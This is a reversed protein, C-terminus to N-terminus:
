RRAKMKVKLTLKTRATVKRGDSRRTTAVVNLALKGKRKLVKRAKASLKLRLKKTAGPAVTVRGRAAVLKRKKASAVAKATTAEVTVACPVASRADCGVKVM